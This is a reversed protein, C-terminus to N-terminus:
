KRFLSRISNRDLDNKTKEYGAVEEEFTHIGGIGVGLIVGVKNLDEKEVDIGADTVAEKAAVVAYQTYLDTKRAEKRDIHDAANFNKM